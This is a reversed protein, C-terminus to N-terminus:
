KLGWDVASTEDEGSTPIATGQNQAGLERTSTREDGSVKGGEKVMSERKYLQGIACFALEVADSGYYSRSQSPLRFWSKNSALGLVNLFFFLSPKCELLEYAAFM